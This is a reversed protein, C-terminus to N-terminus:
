LYKQIFILYNIQYLKILFIDAETVISGDRKYSVTKHNLSQVYNICKQMLEILNNKIAGKM